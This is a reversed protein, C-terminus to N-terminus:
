RIKKFYGKLIDGCEKELIGGYVKVNSNMLPALNLKTGLAGYNLDSAGYYVRPIRANLIAWACMPCPELTVFLTCNELRWNGKKKTAERIALVEAHATPDQTLEKRNCATAIINKKDDVIVCGVPLDEGCLTAAELAKIMYFVPDLTNNKMMTM